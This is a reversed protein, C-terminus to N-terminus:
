TRCLNSRQSLVAELKEWTLGDEHGGKVSVNKVQDQFGAKDLILGMIVAFAFTFLAYEAFLIFIFALRALLFGEPAKRM